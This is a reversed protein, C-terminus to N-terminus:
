ALAWPVLVPSALCWEPLLLLGAAPESRVLTRSTLDVCRPRSQARASAGSNWAGDGSSRMRWMFPARRAEGLGVCLLFLQRRRGAPHDTRSHATDSGCYSRQQKGDLRPSASSSATAKLKRTWTDGSQLNASHIKRTGLFCGACRHGGGVVLDKLPWVASQM